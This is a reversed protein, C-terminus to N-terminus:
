PITIQKSFTTYLTLNTYTPGADSPYYSYVVSSNVILEYAPFLNNWGMIQITVSNDPNRKLGFQAGYDISPSIYDPSFPHTESANISVATENGNQNMVIESESFPPKAEAITNAYLVTSGIASRKVQYSMDADTTFVGTAPMSGVSATSFSAKSFVRSTGSQAALERSDTAFMNRSGAGIIWQYPEDAWNKGLVGPVSPPTDWTYANSGKSLPIFAAFKISIM